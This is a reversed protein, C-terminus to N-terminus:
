VMSFRVAICFVQTGDQHPLAGSPPFPLGNWYEERSFGMALPAQCAVIWQPQLFNIVASGSVSENGQPFLLSGKWHLNSLNASM